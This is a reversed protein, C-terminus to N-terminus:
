DARLAEIPDLGAARRAPLVGAVLGVLLSALPALVVAGLTLRMPWGFSPGVLACGLAGLTVGALGGLLSLVVAETLFQGLVSRSTAGVALRLGIERTRETVSVLMVNAVGIGGVVLSIAGLALLLLELTRTAEQRAKIAEEPRRINFDDEVDLRLQHRQRLLATIAAVAPKVADASVASTQIDDLFARTKGRLKKLSTTYPVLVLDDQDQGTASQGKPGLLGVVQCQLTGLRLGRGVPDDAGFVKEAVTQGVLCVTAASQVAEEDFAVGRAVVWRRIRLFSPSVGRVHTNWNQNGASAQAHDDVQPSVAKVYPVEALIADADEPTLTPTGHNGTHVGGPARSGAEVWVLNDGLEGLAKEWRDRAAQGIAAVWVLSGVGVAIGLAALSTRLRHRRLSRLAEMAFLGIWTM